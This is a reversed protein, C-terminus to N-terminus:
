QETRTPYLGFAEMAAKTTEYSKHHIGNIGLGRAVDVFMARDDLYLVQSPSAQVVDLATRYIDADPKRYHVFSSSIFCDIFSNLNFTKIRHLSLERGENNVAAIKLGHRAKIGRVLDIMDPYPESRDFMFRKFEDRSFSREEYFVVRAVYEDLTLKGAEYTDFTLHHREDMETLDLSFKLAALRRASRDWGNTLLVGGIDLFLTTITSSSMSVEHM